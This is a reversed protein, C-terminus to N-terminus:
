DALDMKIDGAVEVIRFEVRRNSARGAATKNDAIANEPGYGETSLRDGEVGKDTLYKKVSDARRQSLAKNYDANGVNDTYGEVKLKKLGPNAKLDAALKDLGAFSKALIEDKNNAFYIKSVKLTSVGAVVPAAAAVPAAAVPAPTEAPAAAVPEAKAEEVAAHAHDLQWNLGLFVRLDPSGADNNFGRGLGAVYSGRRDMCYGKYAIDAELPDSLAAKPEDINTEGRLEFLVNHTTGGLIPAQYGVGWNVFDEKARRDWGINLLLLDKHVLRYDVAVTAGYQWARDNSSDRPGDLYANKSGVPAVIHPVVGVGFGGNSNDILSIGLGAKINGLVPGADVDTSNDLDNGIPAIYHVSGDVFAHYREAFKSGVGINVSHLYNELKGRSNGAEGPDVALNYNLGIGLKSSEGYSSSHLTLIGAENVVPTYHQVGNTAFAQCTVASVVLAALFKLKM